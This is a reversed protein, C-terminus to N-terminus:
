SDEGCHGALLVDRAARFREVERLGGRTGRDGMEFCMKRHLQEIADAAADHQRFCAAEQEGFGSGHEGAGLAGLLRHHLEGSESPARQVHLRTLGDRAIPQRAMQEGEPAGIGVDVDAQRDRVGGLDREGDALTDGVEAEDLAVDVILLDEGLRDGPIRHHKDDAM